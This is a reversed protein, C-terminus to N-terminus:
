RASVDAYREQLCGRCSEPKCGGLSPTAINHFARANSSSRGPAMAAIAAAQPSCATLM